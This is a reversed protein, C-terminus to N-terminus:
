VRVPYSLHSSGISFPRRSGRWARGTCRSACGQRWGGWGFIHLTCQNEGKMPGPPGKFAELGKSAASPAQLGRSAGPPGQLGRFAGPPGQLNRSARRRRGTKGKLFLFCSSSRKSTPISATARFGLLFYNPHYGTIDWLPHTNFFAWNRHSRSCCPESHAPHAAVWLDRSTPHRWRRM